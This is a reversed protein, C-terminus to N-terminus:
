YGMDWEQIEIGERTVKAAFGYTGFLKEIMGISDLQNLVTEIQKCVGSLKGKDYSGITDIGGAAEDYTEFPEEEQHSLELYTDQLSFVCPEGDNFSPTGGAFWIAQIEPHDALVQQFVENLDQQAQKQMEAYKTQFEAVMAEIKSM